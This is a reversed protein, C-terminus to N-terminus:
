LWELSHMKPLHMKDAIASSDIDTLSVFFHNFKFLFNNILRLVFSSCITIYCASLDANFEQNELQKLLVADHMRLHFSGPLVDVLRYGRFQESCNFDIWAIGYHGPLTDASPRHQRGIGDRPLGVAPDVNCASGRAMKAAAL